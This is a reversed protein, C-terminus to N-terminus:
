LEEDDEEPQPALSEIAEVVDKAREFQLYHGTDPLLALTSGAIEHHLREAARKRAPDDAQALISVRQSIAPYHPSQASLAASADLTERAIAHSVKPTSWIRTRLAIFEDPASRWIKRLEDHIRTPAIFAGLVSAVGLGFYPVGLVEYLPPLARLPTYTASDLVVYANARAPKRIALALATAGGYSHGVVIADHLDLQTLLADAVAANDAPSYKGSDGSFGHGPRDFATLRFRTRLAGFIPAFDELSGPSGHILLVDPGTGRQYVRIPLGNVSVHQGLFGAPIQTNPRYFAGITTLVLALVLMALTLAILVRAILMM